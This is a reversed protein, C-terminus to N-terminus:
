WVLQRLVCRYFGAACRDCASVTPRTSKSVRHMTEGLWCTVKCRPEILGRSKPKLQGFTSMKSDVTQKQQRQTKSKKRLKDRYHCGGSLSNWLAWTCTPCGEVTEMCVASPSSDILKRDPSVKSRAQSRPCINNWRNSYLKLRPHYSLM